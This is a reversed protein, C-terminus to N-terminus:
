ADNGVTENITKTIEGILKMVIKEREIILDMLEAPELYELENKRNPNKIDLNVNLLNGKESAWLSAHAPQTNIGSNMALM